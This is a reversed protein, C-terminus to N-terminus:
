FTPQFLVMTLSSADVSPLFANMRERVWKLHDPFVSPKLTWIGNKADWDVGDLVLLGPVHAYFDDMASETLEFKRSFVNIHQWGDDNTDINAIVHLSAM